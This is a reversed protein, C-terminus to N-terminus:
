QLEDAIELFAEAFYSAAQFATSPQDRDEFAATPLPV